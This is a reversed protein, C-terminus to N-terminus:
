HLIPQLEPQRGRAGSQCGGGRREWSSSHAATDAIASIERGVRTATDGGWNSFDTYKSYAAGVIAAFEDISTRVPKLADAVYAGLRLDRVLAAGRYFARTVVKGAITVVKKGVTSCEGGCFGLVVGVGRLAYDASSMPHGTYDRGTVMGHILQVADNVSPVLPVPALGLTIDVATAALRLLDSGAPDDGVAYAFDSGLTLAVEGLASWRADDDGAATYAILARNLEYRVDQGTAAHGDTRLQSSLAATFGGSPGVVGARLVGNDDFYRTYARAVEARDLPDNALAGSAHLRWVDELDKWQKRPDHASADIRREAEAIPGVFTNGAPAPAAPEPSPLTLIPGLQADLRSELQRAAAAGDRVSPAVADRVFSAVAGRADGTLLMTQRLRNDLAAIEAELRREQQEGRQLSYRGPWHDSLAVIARAADWTNGGLGGSGGCYTYTGVAPMSNSYCLAGGKTYVGARGSDNGGQRYHALKSCFSDFAMGDAFICGDAAAVTARAAAFLEAPLRSDADLRPERWPKVVIIAAAAAVVVAGGILARFSRM